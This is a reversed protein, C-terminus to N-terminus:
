AHRARFRQAKARNGCVAMDCWQRSRNRATVIFAWQCDDARCAKLRSWSGDAMAEAVAALIPDRAEFVLAGKAFGARLGAGRAAADLSQAALDANVAIGNNARLLTRIADRVGPARHEENVFDRIQELAAQM